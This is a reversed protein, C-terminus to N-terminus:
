VVGERLHGNHLRMLGEAIERCQSVVWEVLAYSDRRDIMDPIPRVLSEFEKMRISTYFRNDLFPSVVPKAAASSSAFDSIEVNLLVRTEIFRNQPKFSDGLELWVHLVREFAEGKSSLLYPRNLGRLRMFSLADSAIAMEWREASERTKSIQTYELQLDLADFHCIDVIARPFLSRLDLQNVLGDLLTGMLFAVLNSSHRKIASLLIFEFAAKKAESETCFTKDLHSHTGLLLQQLLIDAIQFRGLTVAQDLGNMIDSFLIGESKEIMLSLLPISGHRAALLLDSGNPQYGFEMLMRPISDGGSSSLPRAAFSDNQSRSMDRARSGASYLLALRFANGLHTMDALHLGSDLIAHVLSENGSVVARCLLYHTPWDPSSFAEFPIDLHYVASEERLKRSLYTSARWMLAAPPQKFTELVCAWVQDLDESLRRAHMEWRSYAYLQLPFDDVHNQDHSYSSGASLCHGIYALSSRVVHRHALEINIAYHLSLSDLIRSSVLYEKVSFHALTVTYHKPLFIAESSDPPPNVKILGPLLDVLDFPSIRSDESFPVEEDPNIISADVM